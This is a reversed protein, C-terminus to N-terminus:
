DENSPTGNRVVIIPSTLFNSIPIFVRENGKKLIVASFTIEDLYYLSDNYKIKTNVGYGTSFRLYLYHYLHSIFDKMFMVMFAAIGFKILLIWIKMDITNIIELAKESNM